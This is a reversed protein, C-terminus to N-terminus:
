MSSLDAFRRALTPLGEAFTPHIHVSRDLVRWTSGAEMHALIVHVLEATEYGVMTAGLMKETHRDVVLRYFGLEQGWEIARAIERIPLTVARADLGQDQAQELTLGVRAVQPETYTSYGLVRDNRTRPEGALIAKLRRYDEWSVHTFAPQGAVDGIAYTGECQTQFREDIAIYGREDLAFGGANANLTETNPRRGTAVLLAQVSVASGDDLQVAFGGSTHSVSSPKCGLRLRIGDAVLAEQLAASADPEERALVRTNGDVIQVECGARAMGQGLELGIYGGGMVLMSAPLETQDFFTRNTLFPTVALGPVPPVLPSTGANVVVIPAAFSEDGAAVTREGTFAADARVVRVGAKELRTEVSSSFAERISRLRRMVAPFDVDVRAHVGLKAALRARGAAHAAALFAKSPTCGYNVCSGGLRGREILVTRKGERAWDVALPVGGQGSGIVIADVETM